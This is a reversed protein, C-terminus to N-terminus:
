YTHVVNDVRGCPVATTATPTNTESPSVPLLPGGTPVEPLPSTSGVRTLPSSSRSSLTGHALEEEKIYISPSHGHTAVSVYEAHNTQPSSPAQSAEAQDPLSPQVSADGDM